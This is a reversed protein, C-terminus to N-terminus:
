ISCSENLGHVNDVTPSREVSKVDPATGLLLDGIGTSVGWWLQENRFHHLRHMRQRRRYYELPPCWNVHGIFHNWEYHLALTFFVALAGVALEISPFSWFTLAVLLPVVVPYVELNISIDSLDNPNAHHLRHSRSVSLDIVKGFVNRPRAHLLFVHLVWELLPWMVVIVMPAVLDATSWNGMLVRALVFGFALITLIVPSAHGYLSRATEGFTSPAGASTSSRGMTAKM